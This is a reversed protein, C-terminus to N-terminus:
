LFEGRRVGRLWNALVPDMLDRSQATHEGDDGITCGSRVSRRRRRRWRLKECNDCWDVLWVAAPVCCVSEDM